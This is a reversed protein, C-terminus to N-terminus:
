AVDLTSEPYREVAETWLESTMCGILSNPLSACFSFNQSYGATTGTCSASARCYGPQCFSLENSAEYTGTNDSEDSNVVEKRLAQSLRIM